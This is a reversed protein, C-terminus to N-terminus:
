QWGYNGNLMGIAYNYDFWIGNNVNSAAVGLSACVKGVINASIWIGGLTLGTGIGRVAGKSLWCRAYNWHFEIANKGYSYNSVDLNYNLAVTNNDKDVASVLDNGNSLAFSIKSNTNSVQNKVLLYDSYDLVDMLSDSVFYEKNVEDFSVYQNAKNVVSSSLPEVYNSKESVYHLSNASAVGVYSSIGVSGLALSVLGISLSKYLRM